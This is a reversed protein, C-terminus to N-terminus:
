VVPVDSDALLIIVHLSLKEYSSFNLCISWFELIVVLKFYVNANIIEDSM